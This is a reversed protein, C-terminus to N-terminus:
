NKTYLSLFFLAETIKNTVKNIKKFRFETKM